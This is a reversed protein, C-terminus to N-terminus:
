TSAGTDPERPGASAPVSTAIIAPRSSSTRRTVGNSPGIHASTTSHPGTGPPASIFNATFTKRIVVITPRASANPNASDVPRSGATSRRIRSAPGIADVTDRVLAALITSPSWETCAAAASTKLFM